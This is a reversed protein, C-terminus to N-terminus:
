NGLLKEAIKRDNSLRPFKNQGGLKGISKMYDNITGSPLVSVRSCLLMNGARLDDYYSNKKRMELDISKAFTDLNEPTEEFEILWEHYSNGSEESIFPAVTFERVHVKHQECAKIMASNVEEAIVHEGFASIFHKVRGSVKIRYPDKSVFRVTDGIDYAWLGANSTIIIAYQEGVEIDHLTLRPADPSGYKDIPIFEYFIGSNTNLLLGDESNGDQYAFFGESAPYAELLDVKGQLYPEFVHAYPGFDVGGHVFLQLNPWQELPMKGTRENLREFFMQVWPPIGSILRLDQQTTQDLIREVKEEWDEICNTKYSPTKNRQLYAPVWHNVIGSLRGMKIGAENTELEPSGSLFIMKGGLFKASGSRKIYHLLADRASVVHNPISEKTIPIYKSGSVTGSTKAFYLPLGPWMVDREGSVARSFFDSQAEYDRVPVMSQFDKPTNIKSFNHAKGFATSSAKVILNLFIREQFRLAEKAEKAVTAARRAAWKKAIWQKLSMQFVKEGTIGSAVVDNSQM